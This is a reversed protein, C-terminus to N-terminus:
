LRFFTFESPLVQLKRFAISMPEINNLPKKSGDFQAQVTHM